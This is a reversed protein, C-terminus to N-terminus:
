YTVGIVRNSTFPDKFVVISSKETIDGTSQIYASNGTRNMTPPSQGGNIMNYAYDVARNKVFGFIVPNYDFGPSVTHQILSAGPQWEMTSVQHVLPSRGRSHITFDRLDTSDISAGAKAVKVGYDPNYERQVATDGSAKLTSAFSTFLPLRYIVWRYKGSPPTGFFPDFVTLASSTIQWYDYSLSLRGYSDFVLFFPYYGLGHNYVTITDGAHPLTDGDIVGTAEEKLLPFSSSFILDKDAATIADHFPQALKIGYDAM